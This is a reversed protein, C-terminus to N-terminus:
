SPWGASQRQPAASLMLVHRRRQTLAAHRQMPVVPSLKPVVPSQMSGSRRRRFSISAKRTAHSGFDRMEGQGTVFIWCDLENAHVPGVGAYARLFVGEARRRYLTLVARRPRRTEATADFVLM